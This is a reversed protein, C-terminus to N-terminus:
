YVLVLVAANQASKVMNEFEPTAAQLSKPAKLKADVDPVIRPVTPHRHEAAWTDHRRLLVM